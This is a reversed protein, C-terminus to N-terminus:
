CSYRDLPSTVLRSSWYLHAYTDLIEKLCLTLREDRKTRNSRYVSVAAAPCQHLARNAPKKSTYFKQSDLIFCYLTKNVHQM